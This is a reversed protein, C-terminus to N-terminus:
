GRSIREIITLASTSAQGVRNDPRLVRHCGDIEVYAPPTGQGPHLLVAFMAHPQRCTVTTSGADVGLLLATEMAGTVQGGGVLYTDLPGSRDRYACVRLWSPRASFVPGGASPHLAQGHRLGALFGIMDKWAAPCGSKAGAQAEVQVGRQASETVWHLAQLAALAQHQPNGCAETPLRPAMIRGDRGRLVFPQVHVGPAACALSAPPRVSPRKLAAALPALGRYSVQRLEFQWVGQGPVNQDTYICRIAAEAVFGAPLPVGGQEQWPQACRVSRVAQAVTM